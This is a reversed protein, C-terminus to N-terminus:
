KQVEVLLARTKQTIIIKCRRIWQPNTRNFYDNLGHGVHNMSNFRNKGVIYMSFLLNTGYILFNIWCPTPIYRPAPPSDRYIGYLLQIFKIM